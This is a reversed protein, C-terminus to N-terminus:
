YGDADAKVADHDFTNVAEIFENTMVEEYTIETSIIDLQKAFDICTEWRQKDSYGYGFEETQENTMIKVAAKVVELSADFGTTISPFHKLVIDTAAEPNCSAFHIGMSLGRLFREIVDKKNEYTDKSILLPNGPVDLNDKCTIVKFDMGQALWLQYGKEWTYVIDCKGENVMQARNEGAVVYEVDDPSLGAAILEANVSASWSADGLAITKGVFDEISNIEDNDARVCFADTNFVDQQFVGILPIGGTIGILTVFNAPLCIDGNGVSVMTMDSTGLAKEFKVEIGQKEFYGMEQAVVYHVDDLVEIERPLVVTIVDLKGRESTESTGPDAQSQPSTESNQGITPKACGSFLTIVMTITVIGAILKRKM